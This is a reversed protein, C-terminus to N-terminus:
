YVRLSRGRTSIRRGLSMKHFSLHSSFSRPLFLLRALFVMRRVIGDWFALSYSGGGALTQIAQRLVLFSRFCFLFVFVFVFARVLSFASPPFNSARLRVCTLLFLHPGYSFANGFSYSSSSWLLSASTSAPHVSCLHSSSLGPLLQNCILHYCKVM